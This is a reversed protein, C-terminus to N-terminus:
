SESEATRDAALQEACSDHIRIARQKAQAESIVETLGGLFEHVPHDCAATRAPYGFVASRLNEVMVMLPHLRDLRMAWTEIIVSQTAERIETDRDTTM